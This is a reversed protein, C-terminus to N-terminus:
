YQARYQSWREISVDRRIPERKRPFSAPKKAVTRRHWGTWWGNMEARDFDEGCWEGHGVSSIDHFAAVKQFEGKSKGRASSRQGCSRLGRRKRRMRKRFVPAQRRRIFIGTGGNGGRVLYSM